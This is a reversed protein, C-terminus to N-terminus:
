GGNRYKSQIPDISELASLAEPFTVYGRAKRPYIDPNAREVLDDNRPRAYFMGSCNAQKTQKRSNRGVHRDFRRWAAQPYTGRGTRVPFLENSHGLEGGAKAGLMDRISGM